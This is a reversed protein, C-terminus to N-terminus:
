YGLYVLSVLLSLVAPFLCSLRETGDKETCDSCNLIADGIGNVFKGNQLVAFWGQDDWVTTPIGNQSFMNTFFNYYARVIVSNREAKTEERRGVGYEGVHVAIDIRKAWTLVEQHATTEHREMAAVDSFWANRGTDGCFDWPDYSHVTLGLRKDSGQDPFDNREPYVYWSLQHQGMGNPAVLVVRDQDVSRIADYGVKNIQRTYGLSQLDYPDSHHGGWGGMTGDPENLVEFLLSHGYDKFHTAIKVWLDSFLNNFHDSGNYHAKLWHEHHTNLLVYLGQDLAYGVVQNITDLRADNQPPFTEGWTVPVRVHKFGASKFLAIRAKQAEFSADNGSEYDFINGLNIGRGMNRLVDM